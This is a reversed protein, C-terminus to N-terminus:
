VSPEKGPTGPMPIWHTVHGLRVNYSTNAIYWDGFYDLAAATVGYVSTVVLVDVGPEPLRESVPIWRPLAALLADALAGESLQGRSMIFQILEDRNM